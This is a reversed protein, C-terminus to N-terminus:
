NVFAWTKGKKISSITSPTVNFKKALAIGKLTSNKIDFINSLKLKATPHAEGGLYTRRGNNISHLNNERYTVWELNSVLNNTKDGDIHNVCPKNEKNEIFAQAVLRHVLLTKVGGVSLLVRRYGKIQPAGKLIQGTIINKIRGLSSVAYVVDYGAVPKWIEKTSYKLEPLM